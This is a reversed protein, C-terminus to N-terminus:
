LIPSIQYLLLDYYKELLGFKEIFNYRFLEVTLM